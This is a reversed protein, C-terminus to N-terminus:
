SVAWVIQVHRKDVWAKCAPRQMVPLSSIFRVDLLIVDHGEGQALRGEGLPCTWRTLSAALQADNLHGEHPLHEVLVRLAWATHHECLDGLTVDRHRHADTM